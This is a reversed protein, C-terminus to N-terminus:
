ETEMLKTDNSDQKLGTQIPTEASTRVKMNETAMDLSSLVITAEDDLGSTVYVFDQDSRAIDLTQIHLLGNEVIWVKNGERVADRPVAVANKLISGKISVEVFTGPLLSPRGNSAKFPEPVEIVIIVLRSTKDVQGTTRRVYGIWTHNAGAFDARVEAITSKNSPVNDNFSVDSNPFDFWELESDELPVEIEVSDIGYAVGITQGTVVYQGLDVSESVVLVDVPLWVETRELNLRAVALRAKASELQAKAQRIQPERLVLASAPETNPNLEEWEQRAVQAEAKEMDLKVQAEAVFANAQQVALEYDRPDIKVLVQNADIFGGAEFQPNVFVIRGSVQPVVQVDVKPKVTGYGHVVMPIDDVKAQMVEVLPPRVLQEVREPPRRSIKLIYAALVAALIICLSIFMQRHRGAFQRVMHAARVAIGKLLKVITSIMNEIQSKKIM